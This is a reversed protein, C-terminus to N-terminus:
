AHIWAMNEALEAGIQAHKGEIKHTVAKGIDHFLAATKAITVNAGIEEAILGAVNALKPQINSFMKAM